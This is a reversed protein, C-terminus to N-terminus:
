TTAKWDQGALVCWLGYKRARLALTRLESEVQRDGMLATAEDIICVIPSLAEGARDQYAYLSDVGPYGAFLEKRRSLEGTLERLIVAADKESDAVPWLLRECQSFPALTAGELDIMALDVPDSSKALQYAVSRLFVSKGWGSSGGVAVHVLSAMNASVIERRGTDDVAVGLVLRRFSPPGALLGTLPVRTPFEVAQVPLEPLATGSPPWGGAAQVTRIVADLGELEPWTERVVRLTFARLNNPDRLIGNEGYLLPYQGREDPRIERLDRLRNQTAIHELTLRDQRHKRIREYVDDYLTRLGRYTLPVGIGLGGVALSGWKLTDWIDM